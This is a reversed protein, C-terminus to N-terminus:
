NAWYRIQDVWITLNEVNDSGIFVGFVGTKFTNEEVEKVKEGNIYLTITGDDTMVGLTNQANDGINIADSDTWGELTTMNPSDWKRLNYRGDCTIGFLYGQETGSAYPSSFMLGYHDSGSCDTTQFKAELYANTLVPWSLRWGDLQGVATLKMVGNEYKIATFEDNDNAWNNGNDMSDVWDPTGLQLAPDGDSLTPTPALTPTMTPTPTATDAVVEPTQTAPPETEETVLAETPEVTIENATPSILISVPTGTLIRAIETAMSNDQEETNEEIIPYNCASLVLALLVITILTLKKMPKGDM